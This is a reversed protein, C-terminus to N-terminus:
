KVMAKQKKYYSDANKLLKKLFKKSAKTKFLPIRLRKFDEYFKIWNEPGFSPKIRSVDIMGLSDAEMLLIEERKKIEKLKDHKSVLKSIRAIDKKSYEKLKSLEKKVIASGQRMHAKKNEIVQGYSAKKNFSCCSYGVDHFYAATLLVKEDAKEKKLIKKMWFVACLTHPVDFDPRGKKLYSLSVKKVKNELNKNLKM